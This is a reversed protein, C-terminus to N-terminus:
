RESWLRSVCVGATLWGAAALILLLTTVM